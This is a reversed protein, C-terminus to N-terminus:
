INNRKEYMNKRKDRKKKEKYVNKENKRIEDNKIQEGQIRFQM